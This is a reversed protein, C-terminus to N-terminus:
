RTRLGVFRGVTETRLYFRKMNKMPNM